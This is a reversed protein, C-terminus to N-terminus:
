LLNSFKKSEFLSAPWLKLNTDNFVEKGVVLCFQDYIIHLVPNASYRHQVLTFVMKFWKRLFVKHHNIRISCGHIHGITYSSAISQFLSKTAAKADIKWIRKRGDKCSRSISCRAAKSNWALNLALNLLKLLVRTMFLIKGKWSKPMTILMTVDQM